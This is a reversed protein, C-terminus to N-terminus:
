GKEVEGGVGIKRKGGGGGWAHGLNRVAHRTGVLGVPDVNVVAHVALPDDEEPLLDVVLDAVLDDGHHEEGVRLLGWM